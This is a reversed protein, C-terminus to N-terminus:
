SHIMQFKLKDTYAQRHKKGRTTVEEPDAHVFDPHELLGEEECDANEQELAPDLNKSIETLDIEKQAQEVYYRAEEVGELHVM